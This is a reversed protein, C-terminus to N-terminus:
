RSFGQAGGRRARADGLADRAAGLAQFAENAAQCAQPSAGVPLKDPHLRLAARRYAQRIMEDAFREAVGTVEAEDLGLAM